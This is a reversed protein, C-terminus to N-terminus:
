QKATSHSFNEFMFITIPIEIHLCSDEPKLTNVGREDEEEGGRITDIAASITLLEASFRMIGVRLLKINREYKLSCNSNREAEAFPLKLSTKEVQEGEEDEAFRHKM